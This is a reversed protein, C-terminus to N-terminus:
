KLEWREGFFDATVIKGTYRSNPPTTTDVIAWDPLKPVQRANNLYDYERYTFGSNLVVYRDPNLPNPYILVPAHTAAPFQQKGVTVTDKNWRIPLKGAIKSLLRNSGPDGWLVLSHNAIDAATVDVDNKIRPEGRFQRRWETIAHQLEADVWKSVGPAAPTGTPRVIMFSQMFADDIPGQLDHRKRLGSTPVSKVTKWKGGSKQLHLTWSLDAAAKPGAVKQGDVIVSAGASTSLPALGAPMALTVATVNQTKLTVNREDVVEADVRAPEWHQGMADVTVWAQRNYKLTPTALRVKRPMRNRGKAVAKDVFDNILPISEKHYSHGTKPGIIHPLTMGEAAFAKAMIDAAQKQSDIEGSYAVTPLNAFNPAYVPCDYMQWLKQEWPTPQLTEKQFVKLFDPTESFGAGPAAAAWDSANHAAFQWAAAGGMSFGRMVIRDDDIKFRQKIDKLAEFLDVEGALKNANCYRGYLQVVFLDPRAFPGGGRQAGDIFNVESLTEGRGHFWTDLRWRKAGNPDYGEPIYLGYPQVSGDIESVYGLVTPGPKSLWPTQGTALLRARERGAALQAKAKDIDKLNFFEGHQLAYRAANHYIQVDPLYRAAKANSRLAAIEKGLDALGQQILARDADPVAVGRPPVPRVNDFRNDAPGDAFATLVLAPALLSSAIFISRRM